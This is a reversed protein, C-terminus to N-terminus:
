FLLKSACAGLSHKETRQENPRGGPSDSGSQTHAVLICARHQGSFRAPRKLSALRPSSQAPINTGLMAYPTTRRRSARPLPKAEKMNSAKDPLLMSTRCGVGGRAFFSIQRRGSSVGHPSHTSQVEAAAGVDLASGASTGESVQADDDNSRRYPASTLSIGSVTGESNSSSNSM